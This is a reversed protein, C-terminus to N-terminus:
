DLCCRFGAITHRDMIRGLFECDCATREAKSLDNIYCGGRIRCVKGGPDRMECADEWEGLGGSLRDISAF